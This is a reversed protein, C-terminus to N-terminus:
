PKRIDKFYGRIYSLSHIFEKIQVDIKDNDTGIHMETGFYAIIDGLIDRIETIHSNHDEQLEKLTEIAEPTLLVGELEIIQKINAM